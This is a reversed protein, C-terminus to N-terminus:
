FFFPAGAHFSCDLRGTRRTPPELHLSWVALGHGDSLEAQSGFNTERKGPDFRSSGSLPTGHRCAPPHTLQSGQLAALWFSCRVQRGDGGFGAGEGGTKRLPDANWDTDSYRAILSPWRIRTSCAQTARHFTRLLTPCAQAPACRATRWFHLLWGSVRRPFSDPQPLAM